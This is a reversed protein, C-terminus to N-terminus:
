ANLMTLIRLEATGNADAPGAWQCNTLEVTNTSDAEAEFGGVQATSYTSNYTVRVYVAGGLAPTGRQCYVNIAGRQFVAVPDGPAYQGASQELYALSSKVEAGAVGVFQDATAGSGMQVVANSSSEYVLPSGFPIAAEGGCPRTNVIMDPQRAYSGAYGNPMTTGISQPYIGAM